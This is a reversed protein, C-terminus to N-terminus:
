RYGTTRPVSYRTSPSGAYPLVGRTRTVIVYLLDLADEQKAPQHNDVAEFSCKHEAPHHNDEALFIAMTAKTTTSVMVTLIFSNNMDHHKSNM